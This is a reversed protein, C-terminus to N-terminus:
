PSPSPVPCAVHPKGTSAYARLAPTTADFRLYTSTISVSGNDRVPLLVVATQRADGFVLLVSQHAPDTHDIKAYYASDEVSIPLPKLQSVDVKSACAVAATVFLRVSLGSDLLGAVNSAAWVDSVPPDLSVKSEAPHGPLVIATVGAPAECNRDERYGDVYYADPVVAFTASASV